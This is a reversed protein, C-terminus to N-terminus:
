VRDPTSGERSTRQGRLGAARTLSAPKGGQQGRRVAARLLQAVDVGDVDQAERRVAQLDQSEIAADVRRWLTKPRRCGSGGNGNAQGTSRSIGGMQGCPRNSAGSMDSRYTTGLVLLASGARAANATKRMGCDVSTWTGPGSM